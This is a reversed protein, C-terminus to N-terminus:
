LGLVKLYIIQPHEISPSDIIDSFSCISKKEGTIRPDFVSRIIHRFEPGEGVFGFYLLFNLKDKLKIM